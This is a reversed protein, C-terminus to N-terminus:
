HHTGNVSWLAEPDGGELTGWAWAKRRLTRQEATVTANGSSEQTGQNM